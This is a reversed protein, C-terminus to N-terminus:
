KHAKVVSSTESVLNGSADFTMEKAEELVTVNPLKAVEELLSESIYLEDLRLTDKIRVVRATELDRAYCTKITARIAELDTDLIVPLKNTCVERSTIGNAYTKIYDIKEALKRTGFDAAGMGNANGQTRETLDLVVIKSIEPGGSAYPTPYRGTINPDMGDGSIDKGIRDVILADIQSVPLRPMNAKAEKLLEQDVEIINEAPVAVLKAPHDYANEVSAVGFLIPIEALAIRAMAVIHEAMHKFSYTHCSDAGKQKGLGITIMKVMGSENAGRFATHPKVRCIVVVGDAEYAHKDFYVPLGNLLRGIEVVEMSSIIPCGASEETIGLEELVGRQGEATAGGHSGMAPVIFPFAGKAQLERIVVTVITQIEAVGRSGVAVAIRMGPRLKTRIEAKAFEQTIVESINGVTANPFTQRIKAMRPLPVNQLLEKIVDM